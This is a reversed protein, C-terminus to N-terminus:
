LSPISEGVLEDSSDDQLVLEPISELFKNLADKGHLDEYKNLAGYLVSSAVQQALEVHPHGAASYQGMAANMFLSGRILQQLDELSQM